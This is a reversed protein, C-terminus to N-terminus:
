MGSPAYSGNVSSYKKLVPNGSEDIDYSFTECPSGPVTPKQTLKGMMPTGDPTYYVKQEIGDASTYVVRQAGRIGSEADAGWSGICITNGKGDQYMQGNSRDISDIKKFGLKALSKENPIRDELNLNNKSLLENLKKQHESQNTKPFSIAGFSTDALQAQQVGSMSFVPNAGNIPQVMSFRREHKTTACM